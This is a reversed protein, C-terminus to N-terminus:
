QQACQQMTGRGMRAGGEGEEDCATADKRDCMNLKNSNYSDVPDMEIIPHVEVDDDDTVDKGKKAEGAAPGPLHKRLGEQQEPSLGDPFEINLILFLNGFAFPNKYTPMGEGKVAKMLRMSSSKRPDEVVFLTANDCKEKKELVEDRTGEKFYAMGDKVVFAAVDVGQRRLQSACAKKLAEADTTQAQALNELGPADCGEFTEWSMMTGDEEGRVVKLPDFGRPLPKTM